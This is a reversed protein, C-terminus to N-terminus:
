KANFHKKAARICDNLKIKKVDTVHSAIVKVDAEFDFWHEHGAQSYDLFDGHLSWSGSAALWFPSLLGDKSVHLFTNRFNYNTLMIVTNRPANKILM